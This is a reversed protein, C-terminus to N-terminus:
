HTAPRETLDDGKFLLPLGTLSDRDAHVGPVIRVDTVRCETLFGTLMAVVDAVNEQPYLPCRFGEAEGPDFPSSLSLRLEGGNVAGKARHASIVATPEGVAARLKRIANAAFIQVGVERQAARGLWVAHLLSQPARPLALLSTGPAALQRGLAHALPMGWTGVEADGLLDAGPAALASGVLFRLHVTEPGGRLAIPAPVPVHVPAADETLARRALLDPLQALDIASASVLVNALAFSQNGALARHERLIDVLATVDHLVCPLTAQSDSGSELGAVVIVPFAFVTVNLTGTTGPSRECEALQRWLHRYAAISPATAFVAALDEGRGPVLLAALSRRIEADIATAEQSTAVAQSESALGHLRAAAVPAAAPNPFTRPDDIEIM